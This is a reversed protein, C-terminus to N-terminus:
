GLDIRKIDYKGDIYEFFHQLVVPDANGFDIYLWIESESKRKVNFDHIKDNLVANNAQIFDNVTYLMKELSLDSFNDAFKIKLIVDPYSISNMYVPFKTGTKVPKKNSKDYKFLFELFSEKSIINKEDLTLTRNNSYGEPIVKSFEFTIDDSGIVDTVGVYEKEINSKWRIVFRYKPYIEWPNIPEITIIADCYTYGDRNISFTDAIEVQVIKKYLDTIETLETLMPTIQRRLEYIFFFSNIGRIQAVTFCVIKKNELIDCKFIPQRHENSLRINEEETCFCFKQPLILSDEKSTRILNFYEDKNEYQWKIWIIGQVKSNISIQVPYYSWGNENYQEYSYGTLKIRKKGHIRECEEALANEARKELPRKEQFFLDSEISYLRLHLKSPALYIKLM